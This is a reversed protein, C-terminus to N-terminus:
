ASSGSVGVGAHGVLPAGQQDGRAHREHPTRPPEPGEGDLAARDGRRLPSTSTPVSRARRSPSRTPTSPSSPSRRTPTFPVPRTLTPLARLRALIPRGARRGRSGAMVQEPAIYQPTGLIPHSRRAARAGLAVAKAVGFDLVKVFDQRPEDSVLFLNAPKIYATSSRRARARRALASAIQLFIAARASGPMPGYNILTDALDLGQPAGDGPLRLRRASRGGYYIDIINEHGLRSVTRAEELFADAFRCTAPSSPLCCKLAVERGHRHARGVYVAGSAEKASPRM